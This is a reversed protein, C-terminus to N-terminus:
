PTPWPEAKVGLPEVLRIGTGALFEREAPDAYVAIRGDVSETSLVVAEGRLFTPDEPAGRKWSWQELHRLSRIYDALAPTLRMRVFQTPYDHLIEWRILSAHRELVDASLVRLEAPWLASRHLDQVVVPYPIACEFTDARELAFDLLRSWQLDGFDAPHYRQRQHM